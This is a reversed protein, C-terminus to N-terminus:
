IIPPALAGLVQEIASGIALLRRDSGVPGDLEIGVPLGDATRGAPLSLGPLGANASPDTNRLYATMTDLMQGHLSVISSGRIEDLPTAPLITTPFMLADVRENAFTTAYLQQL